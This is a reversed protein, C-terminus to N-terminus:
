DKVFGTRGDGETVYWIKGYIEDKKVAGVGEQRSDVDSQANDGLLFYEEKGLKVPEAAIGAEEIDSAFVHKEMKEGDIYLAGDKVQVTEGPLGAVRCM